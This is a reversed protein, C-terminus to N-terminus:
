GIGRLSMVCKLKEIDELLLSRHSVAGIQPNVKIKSPNLFRCKLFAQKPLWNFRFKSTETSFRTTAAKMPNSVQRQGSSMRRVVVM